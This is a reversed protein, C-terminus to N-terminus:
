VASQEMGRLEQVARSRTESLLGARAAAPADPRIQRIRNTEAVHWALEEASGIILPYEIM